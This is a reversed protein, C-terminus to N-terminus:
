LAGGASAPLRAPMIAWYVIGPISFLYPLWFVVALAGLVASCSITGRGSAKEGAPKRLVWLSLTVCLLGSLYSTGAHLFTLFSSSCAFALAVLFSVARSGTVELAISRWLLVTVCGAIMSIAILVSAVANDTSWNTFRLFLPWGIRTLAWGLPRWLVHGFEWLQSAPSFPSRDFSRSIDGVYLGTDALFYGRTCCVLVFVAMALM